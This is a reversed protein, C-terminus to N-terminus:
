SFDTTRPLIGVHKQKKSGRLIVPVTNPANRYLVVMTALGRYGLGGKEDMQYCLDTLRTKTAHDLITSEPHLPREARHHVLGSVAEVGREDLARLAEECISPLLFFEAFNGVIYEAVFDRVEGFQNGTGAFDDVYIIAGQELENTLKNLERVNKYDVFHFGKHELHAGDRLMNLMVPSSSGPDHIQMYIIKKPPINSSRLRALLEENHQILQKETEEQSLYIVHGLLRLVALRDEQKFQRLWKRASELTVPQPRYDKFRRTARWCGHLHRLSNWARSILSLM